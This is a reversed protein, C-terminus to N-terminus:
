YGRSPLFSLWARIIVPLYRCLVNDLFENGRDSELRPMRIMDHRERLYSRRYASLVKDMHIAVHGEVPDINMVFRVLTLAQSGSQHIVTREDARMNNNKVM